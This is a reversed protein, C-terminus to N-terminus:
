RGKSPSTPKAPGGGRSVKVPRSVPQGGGKAPPPAVPPPPLNKSEM